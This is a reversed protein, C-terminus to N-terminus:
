TREKQKKHFISNLHKLFEMAELNEHGGYMNAVVSARIKATIWICCRRWRTWDPNRRCSIREGLVLRQFDPLQFGPAKRLNYILTGWHPHSGKRRIWISMCAPETLLRWAMPTGRSIAPVWDLIVGIGEQHMHDMFAKFDDPTGYRSTPAYYGTM